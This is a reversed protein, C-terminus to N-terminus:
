LSQRHEDGFRLGFFRLTRANAECRRGLMRADFECTPHSLLVFVCLDNKGPGRRRTLHCQRVGIQASCHYSRQAIRWAPM